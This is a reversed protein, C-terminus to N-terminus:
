TTIAIDHVLALVAIIGYKWSSVPHSVKRFAFAIFLIIALAVLIMSIIAKRRLESGVSPGISTFSKEEFQYQSDLRLANFLNQREGETLDKTKIILGTEGTPQLLAEGIEITKIKEKLLDTDPRSNIYNIETLAGGKFDIGLKLGFVSLAVVSLIVLAISIYVFIKKYKVVFM